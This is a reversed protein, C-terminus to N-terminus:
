SSKQPSWKRYFGYVIAKSKLLFDLVNRHVGNEIFGYVIAKSKLLFDLVKRHVGNEIFDM